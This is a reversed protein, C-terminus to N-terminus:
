SESRLRMVVGNGRFRAFAAVLAAVVVTVGVLGVIQAHTLFYWDMARGLELAAWFLAVLIVAFVGIQMTSTAAHVGGTLDEAEYYYRGEMFIDDVVWVQSPDIGLWFCEQYLVDTTPIHRAAGSGELILWYAGGSDGLRELAWQSGPKTQVVTRLAPMDDEGESEGTLMQNWFAEKVTNQDCTNSTIGPVMTTSNYQWASWGEDSWAYPVAPDYAPPTTSPTNSGYNAIWLADDPNDIQVHGVGVYAGTYTPTPRSTLRQVEHNFENNFDDLQQPSLGYPNYEEDNVPYMVGRGHGCDVAYRAQRIGDGVAPQVFFYTGYPLGVREAEHLNRDSQSDKYLGGDAGGVKIWAGAVGSDKVAQWDITGQWRSVDITRVDPM